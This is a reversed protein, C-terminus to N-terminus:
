DLEVLRHTEGDGAGAHGVLLGDRSDVVGPAADLRHDADSARELFNATLEQASRPQQSVTAGRTSLM